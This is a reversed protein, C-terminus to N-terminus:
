LKYTAIGKGYLTDKGDHIDVEGVGITKGKQIIKGEAIMEGELFPRFYNLKMEITSYTWQEPGLLPFLACAVSADALTAMVGGHAVGGPHTLEKRFEIRLRSYGPRIEMVEMGLLSYIGSEHVREIFAEIESPHPYPGTNDM